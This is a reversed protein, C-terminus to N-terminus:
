VAAAAAKAAEAEETLSARAFKEAEAESTIGQRVLTHHGPQTREMADWEVQECVVRGGGLKGRATMQYVVWLDSPQM